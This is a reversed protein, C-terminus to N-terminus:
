KIRFRLVAQLVPSKEEEVTGDPQTYKIFPQLNKTYRLGVSFRKWHYDTQLLIGVTSRYLFSDRYGKVPVISTFLTDGGTTINKRGTAQETVAGALLNYTGGAGLSWAPFLFYNISFPVQHYYLKQLSVKETRLEASFANYFTTQSFSLPKVPQPVSYHFEGQVFWRGKQLRLYVSPIHDSLKNQKGNLNYSSSQQGNVAIAQQLGVGASFLSHSKKKPKKEGASNSVVPPAATATDRTSTSDKKEAAIMLQKTSDTRKQLSDRNPLFFPEKNASVIKAEEKEKESYGDAPMKKTPLSPKNPLTQKKSFSRAAQNIASSNNAKTGQIQPLAIRNKGEEKEEVAATTKNQQVTKNEMEKKKAVSLAPLEGTAKGPKTQIKEQTNEPQQLDKEVPMRGTQKDGTRNLLFYGGTATGFLLLGLLAYRWFWFPVLRREEEKDLLLKMKQWAEEQNPLPMDDWPEDHHHTHESM